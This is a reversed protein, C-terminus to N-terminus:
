VSGLRVGSPGWVSGLRVGSPGWVSGLRVGSPGWVSGLRLVGPVFWVEDAIYIAVSSPGECPPPFVTWTANETCWVVKQKMKDPYQYGPMCTYTVTKDYYTDNSDRTANEVNILARCHIVSSSVYVSKKRRVTNKSGTDFLTHHRCEIPVNANSRSVSQANLDLDHVNRCHINM